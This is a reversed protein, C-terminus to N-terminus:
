CYFHNSTSNTNVKSSLDFKLNMNNIEYPNYLTNTSALFPNKFGVNVKQNLKEIESFDIIPNQAQSLISHDIAHSTCNLKREMVQNSMDYSRPIENPIFPISKMTAVEMEYYPITSRQQHYLSNDKPKGIKSLNNACIFCPHQGAVNRNQHLIYNQYQSPVTTFYDMCSAITNLPPFFSNGPIEQYNLSRKEENVIIEEDFSFPFKSSFPASTPTTIDVPSPLYNNNQCYQSSQSPVTIMCSLSSQNEVASSMGADLLIRFHNIWSNWEKWEEISIYFRYDLSMLFERELESVEDLTKDTLKVWATNCYSNDDLYKSSLIMAAFILDKQNRINTEKPFSTRYIVNDGPTNTKRNTQCQQLLFNISQQNLKVKTDAKSIGHHNKSHHSIKSSMHKPIYTNKKLVETPNCCEKLSIICCDKKNERNKIKNNLYRHIFLLAVYVFNSTLKTRMLINAVFNELSVNKNKKNEENCSKLGSDDIPLGICVTKLFSCVLNTNEMIKEMDEHSKNTNDKTKHSTKQSDAVPIQAMMPYITTTTTTTSNSTMKKHNDTIGTTRIKLNQPHKSKYSPYVNGSVKVKKVVNQKRVGNNDTLTNPSIPPTFICSNNSIM